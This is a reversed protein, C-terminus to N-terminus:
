SQVPKVCQEKKWQKSQVLLYRGPFYCHIENWLTGINRIEISEISSMLFNSLEFSKFMLMNYGM